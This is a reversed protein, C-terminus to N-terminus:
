IGVLGGAAKMILSMCGDRQHTVLGHICSITVDEMITSDSFPWNIELLVSHTVKQM